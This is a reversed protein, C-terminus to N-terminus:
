DSKGTRGSQFKAYLISDPIVEMNVISGISAALLLIFGLATWLCIQYQSIEFESLPASSVSSNGSSGSSSSSDSTRRATRGAHVTEYHLVVAPRDTSRARIWSLVDVDASDVQLVHSDVGVGHVRLAEVVAELSPRQRTDGRLDSTLVAKVEAPLVGGRVELLVPRKAPMALSDLAPVNVDGEFLLPPLGGLRSYLDAIQNATPMESFSAGANVVQPHSADAFYHVSYQATASLCIALLLVAFLGTTPLM